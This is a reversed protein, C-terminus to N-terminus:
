RYRKSRMLATVSDVLSPAIQELFAPLRYWSPVLVERKPRELVDAIARAVIEPGPMPISAGATLETKIFGPSVLSVNVGSGLLERRLALSFGRLGFKSASYIGQFAVIGAVSAVNVIQGHRRARMAPLVLRTLEIPADLNTKLVRVPDPDDWWMGRAISIGANNILADIRGFQRLAEAMLHRRDADETVDAQVTIIREGSSDLESRLAELAELRRAALVLAYGRRSLERATAAGIGSSAGTLVAVPRPNPRSISM